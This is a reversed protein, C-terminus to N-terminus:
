GLQFHEKTLQVISEKTECQTLYNLLDKATVKGYSKNSSDGAWRTIKSLLIAEIEQDSYGANRLSKVCSEWNVYRDFSYSGSTKEALEKISLVNIQETM